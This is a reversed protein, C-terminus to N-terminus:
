DSLYNKFKEDTDRRNLPKKWENMEIDIKYFKIFELFLDFSEKYTSFWKRYWISAIHLWWEWSINLSEYTPHHNQIETYCKEYIEYAKMVENIDALFISDYFGIEELWRSLSNTFFKKVSPIRWISPKKLILWLCCQAYEINSIRRAFNKEAKEGRKREFFIGKKQLYEQIALQIEDNSIFDRENTSNQSNTTETIKRVKEEDLQFFRCLVYADQDIKKSNIIAWSTQQWNVIQTNKISIISNADNQTIESWTFTIGNNYLFFVLGSEELTKNIDKNINSSLKGRINKQFIKSWYREISDKINQCKVRAIYGRESWSQFFYKSDFNINIDILEDLKTLDEYNFLEVKISEFINSYEKPKKYWELIKIRNLIMETELAKTKNWLECCYFINIKKIKHKVLEIKIFNTLTANKSDETEFICQLGKFIEELDQSGFHWNNWQKCNIITLTWENFHVFDIGREDTWELWPWNEILKNWTQSKLISFFCYAEFTKGKKLELRKLYKSIIGPHKVEFDERFLRINRDYIERKIDM